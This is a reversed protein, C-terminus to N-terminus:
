DSDRCVNSCTQGLVEARSLLEASCGKVELTAQMDLPMGLRKWVYRCLKTQGPRFLFVLDNATFRIVFLIYSIINPGFM